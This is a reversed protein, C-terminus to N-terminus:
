RRGDVIPCGDDGKKRKEKGGRDRRRWSGRDEEKKKAQDHLTSSVYIEEERQKWGVRREDKEYQVKKKFHNISAKPVM